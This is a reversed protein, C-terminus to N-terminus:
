RACGHGIARYGVPWRARLTLVLSLQRARHGALGLAENALKEFARFAFMKPFPFDGIWYNM